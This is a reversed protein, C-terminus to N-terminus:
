ESHLVSYVEEALKKSINPVKALDDISARKVEQLGGFHKLLARRRTAGIGPIDELTSTRRAKDRRQQHGTVAFRHAEDRIQQILHLAPADSEVVLEKGDPFVLTEFGPKRTTGKAVGIVNLTSLGLEEMVRMAIGLQGKGGDILLLDPLKKDEKQLRTYRRTLAQEMAAYDDGATIGDINFRRYDSKVAGSTDFVVCSAVTKEGSSHSIDFCEIRQPLDDYGLVERLADFRQFLTFKSNLHNKLNQRAAEIAMALWKARYTRVNHTIKVPREKVKAIAQSLADADDIEHSIIINAPIDMPTEGLYIHSLFRELVANANSELADKPLYSKSGMIRGQRVYLIHVCVAGGEAECAVVDLNGQGSEIIQQAQVQRLAAIQDRYVAAKEFALNQSAAAMAQDLERYLEDNKGELFLASRKVDLDYEDKRIADVCPGSCRKIQYLLCPRSRNSYVSDECQRVGFTKQMFNLTERVAGANPYPGFYQGKRKKAGRHFSLRPHEHETALFIYPYSKDDRLLINFPPKQSKILNHELVLAEAESPTVTVEISAIRKVLAQTKITLGTKQFYSSVRNKLNKAKGVYLIENNANYMQYVGPQKTLNKLFTSSDFQSEPPVAQTSQTSEASDRVDLDAGLTDNPRSM